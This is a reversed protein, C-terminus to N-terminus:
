PREKITIEYESWGSFYRWGLKLKLKGTYGLPYLRFTGKGNLLNVRSTNIVGASTEVFVVENDIAQTLPSKYDPSYKQIEVELYEGAVVEIPLGMLINGQNDCGATQEQVRIAYRDWLLKRPTVINDEHQIVECNTIGALNIKATPIRFTKLAIKHEGEAVNGLDLQFYVTIHGGLLVEDFTDLPTKSAYTFPHMKIFRGWVKGYKEILVFYYSTYSNVLLDLCAEGKLGYTSGEAETASSVSIQLTNGNLTIEAMEPLDANSQGLISQEYLYM